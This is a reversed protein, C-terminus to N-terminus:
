EDRLWKTSKHYISMLNENSIYITLLRPKLNEDTYLKPHNKNHKEYFSNKQFVSFNINMSTWPSSPTKSNVWILGKM